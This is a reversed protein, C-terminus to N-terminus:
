SNWKTDKIIIGINKFYEKDAKRNRRYNKETKYYDISFYIGFPITISLFPIIAYILLEM